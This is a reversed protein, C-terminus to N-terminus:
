SKRSFYGKISEIVEIDAPCWDLDNLEQLTCWKLAQHELLKIKDHAVCIFCHMTLHFTPYDYDITTLYDKIEIKADLEERIERILAHERTEDPKVKGGPFEWKGVLDGYGRRAAAIKLKSSQQVIIAAVM